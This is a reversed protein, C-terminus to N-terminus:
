FSHRGHLAAGGRQALHVLPAGEARLRCQARRVDGQRRCERELDIDRLRHRFSRDAGRRRKRQHPRDPRSHYRDCRRSARGRPCRIARLHPRFRRVIRLDVRLVCDRPFAGSSRLIDHRCRCRTDPRRFIGPVHREPNAHRKAPRAARGGGATCRAGDGDSNDAGLVPPAAGRRRHLASSRPPPRQPAHRSGASPRITCRRCARLRETRRAPLMGAVDPTM